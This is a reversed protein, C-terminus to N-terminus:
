HLKICVSLFERGLGSSCAFIILPTSTCLLWLVSFHWCLFMYKQWGTIIKQLLLLFFATYHGCQMNLAAKCAISVDRRPKIQLSDCHYCHKWYWFVKFTQYISPCLDEQQWLSFRALITCLYYLFVGFVVYSVILNNYFHFHM